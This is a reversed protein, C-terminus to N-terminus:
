ITYCLTNVQPIIADVDDSSSVGDHNTTDTSTHLQSVNATKNKGKIDSEIQLM